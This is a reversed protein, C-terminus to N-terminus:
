TVRRIDPLQEVTIDANSIEIIGNDMEGAAFKRQVIKYFADAHDSFYKAWGGGRDAPVHDSFVERRIRCVVHRGAVTHMVFELWWTDLRPQTNPIPHLASLLQVIEEDFYKITRWRAEAHNHIDAWVGEPVADTGALWRRISRDSVSIDRSLDSQWQVGYLAEGVQRLLHSHSTERPSTM